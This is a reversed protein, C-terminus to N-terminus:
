EQAKRVDPWCKKCPRYGMTTAEGTANVLLVNARRPPRSACGYRCFIGTTKVVYIQGTQRRALLNGWDRDSLEQAM